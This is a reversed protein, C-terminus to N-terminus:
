TNQLCCESSSCSRDAVGVQIKWEGHHLYGQLFLLDSAAQIMYMIKYYCPDM